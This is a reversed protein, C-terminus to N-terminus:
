CSARDRANRVASRQADLLGPGDVTYQPRMADPPTRPRSVSKPWFVHVVPIDRSSQSKSGTAATGTWSQQM